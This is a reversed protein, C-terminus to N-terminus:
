ELLQAALEPALRVAERIIEYDADVAPVFATVGYLKELAERGAPTAVYRLLGDKIRESIKAPLTDRVTVLDNPIPKTLALISVEEVIHPFTTRVLKRADQIKGDRMPSHWTCAVDVKGDRVALVAQPHGGLFVEQAPVIGRKILMAKPFIHGTTSAADTYGIRRNHIDELRTLGSGARVLFQGYYVDSGYRVIRLLPQANNLEHAKLYAFPAIWAVDAADTGLAQILVAYSTPIRVLIKLGTLKELARTVEEASLIIHDAEASPTFFMKVPNGRTGLESKGGWKSDRIQAAWAEVEDSLTHEGSCASLALLCALLLLPIFRMRM